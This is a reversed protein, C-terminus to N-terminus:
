EIEKIAYKQWFHVSKAWKGSEYYGKTGGPLHLQNRMMTVSGMPM